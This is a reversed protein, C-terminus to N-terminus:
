GRRVGVARRVRPGIGATLELASRGTQAALDIASPHGLAPDGFLIAEDGVSVGADGTEVVFQDMAVRGVLPHIGGGIWVSARNSALRPVGDAYGLGVLALTTDIGLRLGGASPSVTSVTGIAEILGTFM